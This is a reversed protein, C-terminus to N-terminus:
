LEADATWGFALLYVSFQNFTGNLQGGFGKNTIKQLLSNSGNQWSGNWYGFQGNTTNNGRYITITPDARKDAKFLIVNTRATNTVYGIVGLQGGSFPTEGGEAPTVDLDFAKEYYRLCRYLNVDHPLFEFDSATTGAELQIGVINIYNSTSDALNVTHNVGDNTADYSRWDNSATGSTYNSGFLMFWDLQISLANDNDLTGVTDGNFTLIKKEWTDASNITYFQSLSRTSDHSYARVTLTGTKNSKVWFSLTMTEASSTGYKLFQLNQGEFRTGVHFQDGASPSANATTCALKLSKAFGQASPVDTDQSMTFVHSGGTGIRWRDVTHYGAGASAKSTGRQAIDMSGNIVLNRFKVNDQFGASPIKSLPM